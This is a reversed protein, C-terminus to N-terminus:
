KAGGGLVAYLRVQNALKERELLVREQQAAYLSRHADLVSLYNDIGKAYRMDSLRYTESTAEVLSQQAALREDITGQVALADAVERFATQIAKEYNVLAIENEAKAADVASWLRADFVPLSLQPAFLWTGSGSDFLGSLESSATGLTTTLSIRPFLAARAAGINANAAKLQHEAQLIDPRLLLIDSSLGSIELDTLKATTSDKRMIGDAIKNGALFDRNPKGAYGKDAYVKKIPTKTHKSFVTCYDLYNTDNVSAESLTTALIFGHNIDVSAHEKLGYHPIDNKIVWNSDLDRNFKKPKGNKDLKAEPTDRKKRLEDIEKNSIPRSASKVLRADVAIGENITLGKAEFQRLIESNIQDM